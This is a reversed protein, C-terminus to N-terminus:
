DFMQLRRIDPQLRVWLLVLFAALPAKPLYWQIETRRRQNDSYIRAVHIYRIALQTRFAAPRGVRFYQGDVYKRSM